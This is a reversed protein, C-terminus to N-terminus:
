VLLDHPHRRARRDGLPRLRRPCGLSHGPRGLPAEPAGSHALVDARKMRKLVVAHASSSAPTYPIRPCCLQSVTLSSRM